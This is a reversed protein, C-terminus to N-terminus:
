CHNRRVNEFCLRGLYPGPLRDGGIEQSPASGGAPRLGAVHVLVFYLSPHLKYKDTMANVRLWDIQDGSRKILRVIDWFYRMMRRGHLMTEHYFRASLYWLLDSQNQALVSTGGPFAITRPAWWCDSVDFDSSLNIHIDYSFVFYVSDELCVLPYGGLRGKHRLLAPIHPALGDLRVIRMLDLLEFDGEELQAKQDAPIPVISLKKPDFYGQEFGAEFFVGEVERAFPPPVLFDLDFMTRAPTGGYFSLDIDGGKLLMLPVERSVLEAVIPQAM